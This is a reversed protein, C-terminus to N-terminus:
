LNCFSDPLAHCASIHLLQFLASLVPSGPCIPWPLVRLVPSGLCSKWSGSPCAFFFLCFPIPLFTSNSCSLCSFLALDPGGSFTLWFLPLVAQLLYGSLPLESIVTLVLCESFSLSSFVALLPSGSCSLSFLFALVSQSFPIPLVHCASCSM